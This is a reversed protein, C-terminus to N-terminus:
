QSPRSVAVNVALCNRARTSVDPRSFSLMSDMLSTEGVVILVLAPGCERCGQIQLLTQESASSGAPRPAAQAAWNPVDIGRTPEVVKALRLDRLGQHPRGAGIPWALAEM